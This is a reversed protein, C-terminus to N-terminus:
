AQFTKPKANPRFISAGFVINNSFNLQFVSIATQENTLKICVWQEAFCKNL